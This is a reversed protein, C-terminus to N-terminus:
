NTEEMRTVNVDIVATKFSEIAGSKDQAPSDKVDSIVTEGQTVKVLAYYYTVTYQTIIRSQTSPLLEHSRKQVWTCILHPIICRSLYHFIPIQRGGALRHLLYLTKMKRWLWTVIVGDAMETYLETYLRYYSITNHDPTRLTRATIFAYRKVSDRLNDGM